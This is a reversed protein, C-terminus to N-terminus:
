SARLETIIAKSAHAGDSVAKAVQMYGGISDGASFIGPVGTSGNEQTLLVDSDSGSGLPLGLKAAFDSSGATGIAVFLGQVNTEGKETKVAKIVGGEEGPGTGEIETIKETIISIGSPLMEKVGAELDKGDTFLIVEQTIHSLHQVESAAYAGSGVVGVTKNKYFFGDCVACFSIGHGQYEDFGKVKLGKRQRGVALLVSTSFYTDGEATTIEFRIPKKTEANEDVHIPMYPSLGTVEATEVHVGLAQAQMVSKQALELGSIPKELGYYNEILHAKELAGFDKGLVLVSMKARAIYLSASIGAPGKGIIIVDYNTKMYYYYKKYYNNDAVIDSNWHLMLVKCLMRKRVVIFM